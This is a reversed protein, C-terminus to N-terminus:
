RRAPGPLRPWGSAASTCSAPCASPSPNGRRTSCTCASTRSRARRDAGAGARRARRAHVAVRRRRRGGRDPRLPQAARRAAPRSAAGRSTSRCSRAAASWGACRRAAGRRAGRGPVGRADVARLPRDHGARRRDPRAPLRRGQARRAPGAGPPRRHAAALLVGLGVRRLRDPTKQLVADGAGLRLTRQMWDLRNVIGRHTNPVGKPRGTSGSTYIVYAVDAASGLAEVTRRDITAWEDIDGLSRADHDCRDPM